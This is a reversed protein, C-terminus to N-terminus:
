FAALLEMVPDFVLNQDLDIWVEVMVNAAVSIHFDFSGGASQTVAMDTYDNYSDTIGNNENSINTYGDTTSFGTIRYLTSTSTVSPICYGTYFSFPGTWVSTESGCDQRIYYEYDTE